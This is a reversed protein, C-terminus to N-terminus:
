STADPFRTDRAASAPNLKFNSDSGSASADDPSDSARTHHWSPLPPRGRLALSNIIVPMSGSDSDVELKCCAETGSYPESISPPYQM